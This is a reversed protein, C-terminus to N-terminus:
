RRVLTSKDLFYEETNYGCKDMANNFNRFLAPVTVKQFLAWTFFFLDVSEQVKIRRTWITTRALSNLM